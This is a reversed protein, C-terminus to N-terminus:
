IEWNVENALKLMKKAEEPEISKVFMIKGILWEKRYGKDPAIRNFHSHAGFKKCFHLHRYIDKKYKKRVRVEDNILLGTVMQKQGKKYIGYKNWNIRFKEDSIIKKLLNISPLEEYAGSFTIDDAYRSYNAGTKNALSIFRHDLRRCILNSLSPSTPAGQPLVPENLELLHSFYGQEKDNLKEFEEENILVTCLKAFDVSLNKSYGLSTFFGFIRRESISEFFNELDLNLIVERNEHIKANDYISREKVFGMAYHSSDIKDLINNKIWSQLYRLSKYPAIIRRFGGKRKKILHYSYYHERFAIIQRIDFYKMGTLLAFHKLSFIIPLNKSELVSIYELTAQIYEKSHREEKANEIFLNRPFKM